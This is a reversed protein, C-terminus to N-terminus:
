ARSLSPLSSRWGSPPTTRALTICRRLAVYHDGCPVVVGSSLERPTGVDLGKVACSFCSGSSRGAPARSPTGTFWSASCAPREVVPTPERRTGHIRSSIRATTAPTIATRSADGCGGSRCPGRASRWGWHDPTIPLPPTPVAYHGLASRRSGPVARPWSRFGAVISRRPATSGACWRRRRRTEVAQNFPGRVPARFLGLPPEDRM